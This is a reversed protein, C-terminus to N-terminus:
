HCYSVNLIFGNFRAYNVRSDSVYGIALRPLPLVLGPYWKCYHTNLVSQATISSTNTIQQSQSHQVM